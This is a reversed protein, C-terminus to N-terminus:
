IDQTCILPQDPNAATGLAHLSHHTKTQATRDHQTHEREKHENPTTIASTM